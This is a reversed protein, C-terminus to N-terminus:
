DGGLNCGFKVEVIQIAARKIPQYPQRRRLRFDRQLRFALKVNGPDRLMQINYKAALVNQHVGYVDGHGNTRLGAAFSRRQDSGQRAHARGQKVPLARKAAWGAQNGVAPVHTAHHKGPGFELYKKCRTRFGAGLPTIFLQDFVSYISINRRNQLIDTLPVRPVTRAARRRQLNCSVGQYDIGSTEAHRLHNRLHQLIPPM